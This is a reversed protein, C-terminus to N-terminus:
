FGFNSLSYIIYEYIALLILIITGFAYWFKNNAGSSRNSYLIYTCGLLGIWIAFKSIQNIHDYGWRFNNFGSFYYNLFALSIPIIVFFLFVLFFKKNNSM